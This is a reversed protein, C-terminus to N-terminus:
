IIEINFELDYAVDGPLMHEPQPMSGWTDDGGVGMQASLVKLITFCSPPLEHIHGADELQHPTYPLVSFELPHSPDIASIRIGTGREDLVEVWRTGCRNGCEQPRLYPMVAVPYEFVGLRSGEMRDRHNELPGYGYYRVTRHTLPLTFLLGFEPLNPMGEIADMHVHCHITSSGKATYTVDCFADKQGGLRFRTRFELSDETRVAYRAENKAKAYLGAIKWIGLKQPMAWGRDNDVPARWFNPWPPQKMLERGHVTLSHLGGLNQCFMANYNEEHVFYNVDSKEIVAATPAPTPLQGEVSFVQQASAIEHGAKAWLCDEKLQLSVDLTYEGACDPSVVPLTVQCTESPALAATLSGSQCVTGLKSLTWQLTFDSLDTFLFRNTLTVTPNEIAIDVSQYCSKVHLLKASITRDAFVIGNGVFAGSNPRDDYDGGYHHFGDSLLAQDIFDWVFGGQYHPYQKTLNTYRNMGGGSNGMCHTYECSIFPKKPDNAVYGTIHEPWWYMHSEVDSTDPFRNDKGTGEYHVIRSPDERRFLQSLKYITEGGYSENGCSWMLICAHNRDRRLMGEGRSLVNDQWEPLDNPLLHEPLEPGSHFLWTGHTELNTEDMVYLGYQDCLRYFETQNPYHSTRVANINHQKMTVIDWLMDEQTITRGTRHNFEHRNVGNLVVRRGNILLLADKIEVRRIGVQERVTEITKGNERVELQLTYLTPKEASWLEPHEVPFSFHCQRDTPVSDAQSVTNGHPDLM